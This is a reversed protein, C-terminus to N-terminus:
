KFLHLFYKIFGMKRLSRKQSRGECDEFGLELTKDATKIIDEPEESYRIM